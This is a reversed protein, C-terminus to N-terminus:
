QMEILVKLTKNESANKFTDYANLIDGFKFDSSCNANEINPVLRCLLMRHTIMKEAPLKKAALLKLLM